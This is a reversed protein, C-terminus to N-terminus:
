VCVERECLTCVYMCVYVYVCMCVYICVHVCVCVCLRMCMCTCAKLTSCFCAQHHRSFARYEVAELEICFRVILRLVCAALTPELECVDARTYRGPSSSPAAAAMSDKDQKTVKGANMKLLAFVDDLICHCLMCLMM